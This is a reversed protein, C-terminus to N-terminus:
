HPLRWTQGRASFHAAQVQWMSLSQRRVPPLPMCGALHAKAAEDTFGAKNVDFDCYDCEWKGAHRGNSSSAVRDDTAEECDAQM